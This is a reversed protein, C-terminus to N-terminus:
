KSGSVESSGLRHTLVPGPLGLPLSSGRADTFMACATNRGFSGSEKLFHSIESSDWSTYLIAQVDKQALFCSTSVSHHPGFPGFCWSSLSEMPWVPCNSRWFSYLNYYTVLVKFLIPFQRVRWIYISSCIALVALCLSRCPLHQNCLAPPPKVSCFGSDLPWLSAPWCHSVTVPLSVILFLFTQLCTEQM